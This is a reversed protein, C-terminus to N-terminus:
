RLCRMLHSGLFVVLVPNIIEMEKALYNSYCTQAENTTPMLPKLTSSCRLMATCYVLHTLDLEGLVADIICLHNEPWPNFLGVIMIPSLTSGFGGQCIQDKRYTNTARPCRICNHNQVEALAHRKKTRRTLPRLRM